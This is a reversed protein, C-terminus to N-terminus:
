PYDAGPGCGLAFNGDIVVKWVRFIYYLILIYLHLFLM